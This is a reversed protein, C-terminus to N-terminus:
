RSAPYIFTQSQDIEIFVEQGTHLFNLGPLRAHLHLDINQEPKRIEVHVLTYRGLLHTSMVEGKVATESQTHVNIGEYRLIIVAQQEKAIHPAELTGFISTVKGSGTGTAPIQNVEGFFEAVFANEPRCYLDIPRGQQMVQGENLVVIKDSMFMAEEADHTVILAAIKESKLIHLMRDRVRERLRSDLGSYPEDFLILDPSPAIARAVAVRQQQGGSLEHPYYNAYELVDLENLIDAVRDKLEADKYHAPKIGFSVNQEVTMHPFLAYSQFVIGMNRHEPLVINDPSSIQINNKTIMGSSPTEFGAALRLMTTKGCGSPGLLSVIEGNQIQFSVDEVSSIRGYHHYIKEFSILTQNRVMPPFEDMMGAGNM